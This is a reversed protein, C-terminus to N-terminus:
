EADALQWVITPKRNRPPGCTKGLVCGDKKLQLLLSRTFPTAWKRAEKDQFYDHIGAKDRVASPGLWDGKRKPEVLADLVIEKLGDICTKVDLKKTDNM